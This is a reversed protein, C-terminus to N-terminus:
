GRPLPASANGADKQRNGLKILDVGRGLRRRAHWHQVALRGLVQHGVLAGLWQQGRRVSLKVLSVSKSKDLSRDLVHLALGVTDRAVLLALDCSSQQSLSVEAAM